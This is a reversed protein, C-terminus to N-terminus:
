EFGECCPLRGLADLGNIASGRSGGGGQDAPHALHLPEGLTFFDLGQPWVSSLSM